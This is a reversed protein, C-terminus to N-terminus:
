VTIQRPPHFCDEVILRNMAQALRSSLYRSRVAGVSVPNVAVLTHGPSCSTVNQICSLEQAPNHGGSLVSVDVASVAGSGGTWFRSSFEPTMNLTATVILLTTVMAVWYFKAQWNNAKNM